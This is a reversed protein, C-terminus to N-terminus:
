GRQGLRRVPGSFGSTPDTRRALAAEALCPLLLGDGGREWRGWVVGAPRLRGCAVLQGLEGPSVPGLLTEGRGLYWCGFPWRAATARRDM